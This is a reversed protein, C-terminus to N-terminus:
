IFLAWILKSIIHVGAHALVAYWIGYKRYLRGFLLGAGGNLLFCRFIIIPSLGLMLATAPLHAAAFLMASIINAWVLQATTPADKRSLKMLIFAILSMLFLRLMMEEVVGGYTLSAIVYEITPKVLYSDKIAESIGSFFLADPLILGCGGIVSVAAVALISRASPSASTWLGIREALIRGVLGCFLAYGAAQIATIVAILYASGLQAIAEELLAPDTSQLTYIGTFYGGVLGFIALFIIFYLNKKVFSIM